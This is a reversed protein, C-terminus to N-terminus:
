ITIVSLLDCAVYYFWNRSVDVNVFYNFSDIHQKVLGKVQLIVDNDWDSCTKLISYTFFPESMVVM